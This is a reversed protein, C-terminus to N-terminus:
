SRALLSRDHNPMQLEELIVGGTASWEHRGVVPDAHCYAWHGEHITLTGLGNRPTSQCHDGKTCHYAVIGTERMPVPPEGRSRPVM